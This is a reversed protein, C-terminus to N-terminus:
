NTYIANLFSIAFKGGKALSNVYLVYVNKTILSCRPFRICYIYQQYFLNNVNRYEFGTRVESPSEVVDALPTRRGSRHTLNVIQWQM